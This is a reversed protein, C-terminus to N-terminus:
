QFNQLGVVYVKYIFAHQSLTTYSSPIKSIYIYIYGQGQGASRMVKPAFDGM